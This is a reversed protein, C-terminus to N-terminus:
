VPETSSLNFFLSLLSKSIVKLFTKLFIKALMSIFVIFVDYLLESLLKQM